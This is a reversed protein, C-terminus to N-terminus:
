DFEDMLKIRPVLGEGGAGGTENRLPSSNPSACHAILDNIM